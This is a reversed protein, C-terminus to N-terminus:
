GRVRGRERISAVIGAREENLKQYQSLTLMEFEMRVRPERDLLITSGAVVEKRFVTDARSLDVLDVERGTRCELEDRAELLESRGAECGPAFLLALDLDSDPGALGRATSGFLYVARVAAFREGLYGAIQQLETADM